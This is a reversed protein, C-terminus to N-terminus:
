LVEAGAVQERLARMIQRELGRGFFPKALIAQPMDGGLQQLHQGVVAVAEVHRRRRQEGTAVQLRDAAVEAGGVLATPLMVAISLTLGIAGGNAEAIANNDGTALVDM